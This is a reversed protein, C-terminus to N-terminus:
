AASDRSDPRDARWAGTLGRRVLASLAYVVCLVIFAGAITQGYFGLRAPLEMDNLFPYPLGDTVRGFPRDNLPRLVAEAWGVYAAVVVALLAAALPFVRLRRHLFLADIWQLVPGVLHVYYEIWLPPAGNGQVLAPDKFWLSWYLYVVMANLTATVAVVAPWDRTSRGEMLAIMRSASFFSFLLAWITLFRFPGGVQSYDADIILLYVVYYGALLFVVWRYLLTLSM